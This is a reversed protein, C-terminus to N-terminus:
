SPLTLLNVTSAVCGAVAVGWMLRRVHVEWKIQRVNEFIFPSVVAGAVFGALHNSYSVRENYWLFYTMLDMAMMFALMAVHAYRYPVETWNILLNGAHAGMLAYVGGSAGVVRMRDHEADERVEWGVGYAGGVVGLTHVIGVRLNGHAMNLVVGMVLMMLANNLLHPLDVHLLSYAYWRWVESAKDTDLILVEMRSDQLSLDSSVVYMSAYVLTMLMMYAPMRALYFDFFDVVRSSASRPLQVSVSDDSVPIEIQLRNSNSAM